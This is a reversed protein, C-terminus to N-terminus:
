GVMAVILGGILGLATLVLLGAAIVTTLTFRRSATRDGIVGDIRGALRDVVSRLVSLEGRAQEDIAM